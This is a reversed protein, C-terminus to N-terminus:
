STQATAVLEAEILALEELFEDATEPDPESELTEATMAGEM